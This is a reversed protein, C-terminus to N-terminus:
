ELALLNPEEVIPTSVVTPVVVPALPKLIADPYKATFPTHRVPPEDIRPNFLEQVPVLSKVFIVAVPAVVVDSKAVVADDVFKYELVALTPVSEAPDTELLPPIVAADEVILAVEVELPSTADNAFKTVETMPVSVADIAFIVVAVIPESVPVLAMNVFAVLVFAVDVLLKMEFRTADTPAIVFMVPVVSTAVLAVVVVDNAVVADLVFRYELMAVMPVILPPVTLAFLAVIVYADLVATVATLEYLVVAEVVLRVMELM